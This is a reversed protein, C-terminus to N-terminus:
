SKNFDVFDMVGTDESVLDAHEIVRVFLDFVERADRVNDEGDCCVVSYCMVGNVCHYLLVQNAILPCWHSGITHTSKIEGWPYNTPHNFVLQNSPMFESKTGEPLSNFFDSHEGTELEAKCSLFLPAKNEEYSTQLQNSM